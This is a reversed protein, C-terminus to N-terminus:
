FIREYFLLYAEANLVNEEKVEHVDRDSVYYWKGPPPEVEPTTDTVVKPTYGVAGEEDEEEEDDNNQELANPRKRQQPQQQSQSKAFSGDTEHSGTTDDGESDSQASSLSDDSDRLHFGMRKAQEKAMEHESKSDLEDKTGSPIFKWREDDPGFPPRVKVYAVYHGGSMTGTHEVVGYLAYLIKKQDPRIHSARKVKSGCFPAIDLVFPFSVPKSIKKFIGRPGVQFRKLHLILVAPPVSILFQKTANTNVSKGDKGNIRETCAECCVKNNGSMLEVATFNNLCSQVSCEGEGCQYRPAITNSWDAHSNTRQRAGQRGSVAARRRLFAEETTAAAAAAAATKGNALLQLQLRAARHASVSIACVINSGGEPEKNPNEPTDDLKEPVSRSPAQSQNGNHDVAGDDMVDNDEVDADSLANSDDSSEARGEVVVDDTLPRMPPMDVTDVNESSASVSTSNTTLGPFGGTPGGVSTLNIRNKQHKAIRRAKKEREREKKSLPQKPTAAPTDGAPATENLVRPLMGHPEPAGKNYPALPPQQNEVSVVPLSIDLFYEHRSSTHQCEQCTLTSVLSGRFVQEPRFVWQAIQDGYFRLMAKRTEDVDRYNKDKQGFGLTHLILAQYRRLDDTRVSELLHRLLEHSDQQHGARFQPWKSVVEGLLRSPTNPQTTSIMKTLVDALMGTLKRWAELEGVIPELLMENGDPLKLTGGPILVKEGDVASENLIPLLFPTRALCQLVANFYCTNGINYLGSVSPGSNIVNQKIAQLAPPPPPLAEIVNNAMPTSHPANIVMNRVSEISETLQGNRASADNFGNSGRLRSAKRKGFEVIELLMPTAYPDVPFQCCYCWITFTSTNMALEHMDSQTSHQMAHQKRNRGCLQSGCKLCMWLTCDARDAAGDLEKVYASHIVAEKTCRCCLKDFGGSQIKKLVTSLEVAKTIHSCMNAGNVKNNLSILEEKSETSSAGDSETSSHDSRVRKGM